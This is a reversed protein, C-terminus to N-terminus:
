RRHRQRSNQTVLGQLPPLMTALQAVANLAVEGVVIIIIIVMSISSATSCQGTRSRHILLFFFVVVFLQWVIGRRIRSAPISVYRAFGRGVVLVLLNVLLDDVFCERSVSREEALYSHVLNSAAKDDDDAHSAYATCSTPKSRM